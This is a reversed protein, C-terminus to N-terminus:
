VTQFEFVQFDIAIASSALAAYRAEEPSMGREINEPIEM